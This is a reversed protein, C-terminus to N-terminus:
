QVYYVTEWSMHYEEDWCEFLDQYTKCLGNGTGAYYARSESLRKPFLAYNLLWTRLGAYELADNLDDQTLAPLLPTTVVVRDLPVDFRSSRISESLDAIM